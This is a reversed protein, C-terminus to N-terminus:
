YVKVPTATKVEIEYTRLELFCNRGHHVCKGGFCKVRHREERTQTIETEIKLKRHLHVMDSKYQKPIM